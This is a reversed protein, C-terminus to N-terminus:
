IFLNSKADSKILGKKLSDEYKRNKIIFSEISITKNLTWETIYNLHVVPIGLKFATRCKYTDLNNSDDKILYNVKSNLVFSVRGGNAAIVDILSKKLKYPTSNKLDFCTIEGDFKLKM